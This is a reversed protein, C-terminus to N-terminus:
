SQVDNFQQKHSTLMIAEPQTLIYKLKLEITIHSKYMEDNGVM